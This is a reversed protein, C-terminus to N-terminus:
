YTLGPVSLNQCAVLDGRRCPECKRCHGGYWGIGVRQGPKWQTVDAGVSDVTGVIEHGPVRPYTVMPFLGAVTIADSHCVGCAEVRVRVEGAKPDPVERVVPRLPGGAKEVEIYRGTM